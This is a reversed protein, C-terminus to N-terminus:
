QESDDTGYDNTDNAHAHSNEGAMVMIRGRAHLVEIPHRYLNSLVETTIVEDTTGVVARGSVLYM